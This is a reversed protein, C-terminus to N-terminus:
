LTVDRKPQEQLLAFLISKTYSYGTGGAILIAPLNSKQLFASGLGVEVDLQKTTKAKEVVEFAYPNDPTAGIHLELLGDTSPMNAISFPRKDKEGMVVQLYQGAKFTLNQKADLVIKLVHPTLSDISVVDTNIITM